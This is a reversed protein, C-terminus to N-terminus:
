LLKDIFLNKNNILNKDSNLLYRALRFAFTAKGVGKIGYFIYSNSLKENKIKKLFLDEIEEYGYFENNLRPLTIAFNNDDKKDIM